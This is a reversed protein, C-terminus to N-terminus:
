TAPQANFPRQSKLVGYALVLLKRMIAGVILMRHKGAARLRQAFARLQPNFRLATLAPMYLAKRLRANGTKCLRGNGRLSTGSQRLRPSLGAFAAVAGASRFEELNPAESLIASATTEAIGPISTLLQRKAKLGPHQEFHEAILREVESIAANLAAIVDRLSRVVSQPLGPTQVRVLHQARSTKLHELQRELAQLTRVEPAAPTWPRPQQAQCFRAILAADVADTKTRLLESQSYAKIRAPNVVSVMHGGDHLHLALAEWYSGTAEMCAHVREAKRNRLWADLQHFGKASNPVSKKAQGPESILHAHVTNKSIDIGLIAM